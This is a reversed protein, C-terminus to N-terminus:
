HAIDSATTVSAGSNIIETATRTEQADCLGELAIFIQSKIALKHIVQDTSTIFFDSINQITKSKIDNPLILEKRLLHAEHM